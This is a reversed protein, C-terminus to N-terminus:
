FVEVDILAVKSCTSLNLSRALMVVSRDSGNVNMWADALTLLM